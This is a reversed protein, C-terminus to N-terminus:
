ANAESYKGITDTSSAGKHDGDEDVGGERAERRERLIPPMQGRVSKQGCQSDASLPGGTGRKDGLCPRFIFAGLRRANELRCPTHPEKKGGAEIQHETAIAPAHKKHDTDQRRNDGEENSEPDSLRVLPQVNM